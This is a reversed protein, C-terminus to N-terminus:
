VHHKQYENAKHVPHQNWRQEKNREKSDEVNVHRVSYEQSVVKRLRSHLVHGTLTIRHIYHLVCGIAHQNSAIPRDSVLLDKVINDNWSIIFM